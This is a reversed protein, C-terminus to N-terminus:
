GGIFTPAVVTAAVETGCEELAVMSVPMDWGGFPVMRAGLALHLPDLSRTIPAGDAM